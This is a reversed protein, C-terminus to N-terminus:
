SSITSYNAFRVSQFRMFVRVKCCILINIIPISDNHHQEASYQCSSTASCFTAIVVTFGDTPISGLELVTALQARMRNPNSTLKIISCLKKKNVVAKSGM